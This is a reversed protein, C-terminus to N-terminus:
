RKLAFGYEFLRHADLWKDDKRRGSKLVVAILTRGQHRAAGVYCYGSKSTYGTKIGFANADYYSSGSQLIAYSNKLTLAERKSTAAMTYRLTSVIDVFSQNKLAQRTLTAMDRATTYHDPDHYGHANVFHTGTMGLQAAKKNMAAVFKDITGYSLVAAANAADNGSRLILATLLDRGSMEEGVTLPVLSSDGPVQAAEKPITVMKKLKLKGLSLM